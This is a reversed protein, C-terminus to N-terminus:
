KNSIFWQKLTSGRYRLYLTLAHSISENPDDRFRKFNDFLFNIFDVIFMFTLFFVAFIEFPSWRVKLLDYLANVAIGGIIAVLSAIVTFGWQMKLGRLEEKEKKAKKM